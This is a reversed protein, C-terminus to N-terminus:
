SRSRRRAVVVIVGVIVVVGILVPVLAGNSEEIVPEPEIEPLVEPEIVPPPLPPLKIFATEVWEMAKDDRVKKDKCGLMVVIVRRGDRQVTVTTSFGGASFYGTKLGDCGASRGLLTNSSTLQMPNGTRFNRTAISTYQLVEPHTELLAKALLAMDLASTVDPSQGTSPPLGHVTNFTTNKLGLEKAIATM